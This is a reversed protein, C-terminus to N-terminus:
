GIESHRRRWGFRAAFGLAGLGALVLGSPEPNNMFSVAAIGWQPYNADSPAEVPVSVSFASINGGSFAYLNGGHPGIGDPGVSGLEKWHSNFANVTVPAGVIELMTSYVSTAKVTGPVVFNGGMWSEYGIQPPPPPGTSIGHAPIAQPQAPAWVTAGDLHTIAAFSFNLGLGTYQTTVLNAAPVPTSYASSVAGPPSSISDPTIMEARAASATLVFAAALAFWRLSKPIHM